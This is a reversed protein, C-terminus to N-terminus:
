AYEERLFAVLEAMSDFIRTACAQVWSSMQGKPMARVIYVPKEWIYAVTIESPTGGSWQAHEDWLCIVYDSRALADLDHAVIRRMMPVFRDDGMSKWDAFSSREEDSLLGLEEACPNYVTHGLEGLFPVIEQRWRRGRDPAREMAGALYAQRAADVLTANLSDV